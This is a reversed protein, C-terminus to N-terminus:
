NSGPDCCLKVTYHSKRYSGKVKGVVLSGSLAPNVSSFELPLFGPEMALQIDM